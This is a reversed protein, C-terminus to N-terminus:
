LNFTGGVRNDEKCSSLYLSLLTVARSTPPVIWHVESVCYEVIPWIMNSTPLRCCRCSCLLLDNSLPFQPCKLLIKFRNLVHKLFIDLTPAPSDLKSETVVHLCSCTITSVFPKTQNLHTVYHATRPSLQSM